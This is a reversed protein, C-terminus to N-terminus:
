IFQMMRVFLDHPLEKQQLMVFVHLMQMMRSVPKNYIIVRAEKLGWDRLLSSWAHRIDSIPRLNDQGGNFFFHEANRRPWGEPNRFPHNLGGSEFQKIQQRFGKWSRGRKPDVWWRPDTYNCSMRIIELKLAARNIFEYQNNCITFPTNQLDDAINLNIDPCRNLIIYVQRMTEFTINTHGHSLQSYLTKRYQLLQHLITKGGKSIIDFSTKPHRVLTEFMGINEAGLSEQFGAEVLPLIKSSCLNPNINPHGLLMQLILLNRKKIACMLPTQDYFDRLNPNINPHELIVKLMRLDNKEIAYNVFASKKWKKKIYYVFSRNIDFSKHKLFLMQIDRSCFSLPTKNNNGVWNGGEVWISNIDIRPDLLLTQIIKMYNKRCAAYLPSFGKYNKRNPDFQRSEVLVEVIVEEGSCCAIYLASAGNNAVKPGPWDERKHDFVDCLHGENCARFLCPLNCICTDENLEFLCNLCQAM